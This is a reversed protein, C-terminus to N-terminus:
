ECFPQKRQQVDLHFHDHHAANATPGLTTTFLGCAGHYVRHLFASRPDNLPWHQLVSVQNRGATVFGSVDIALALAHNSLKQRSDRYRNRCSYSDEVLVTVVAEHLLERAAPQVVTEMWRDLMEAVRCTTTAAPSLTVPRASRFGELLIPAPAGCVGNRIPPLLHLHVRPNALVAGCAAKAKAIASEPWPATPDPESGPFLPPLPRFPILPEALPANYKGGDGAKKSKAGQHRAGDKTSKAEPSAAARPALVPAAVVAAGFLATTLMRM